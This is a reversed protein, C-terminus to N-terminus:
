KFFFFFFVGDCIGCIICDWEDDTGCMCEERGVEGAYITYISTTTTTTRLGM